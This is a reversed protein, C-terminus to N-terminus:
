KKKAVKEDKHDPHHAKHDHKEHHGDEHDHDKKDHSVHEHEKTHGYKKKTEDHNHAFALSTTVFLAIAILSFKM